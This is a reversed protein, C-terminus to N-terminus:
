AVRSTGLFRGKAKGNREAPGHCGTVTGAM